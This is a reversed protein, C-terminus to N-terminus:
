LLEEAMKGFSNLDQFDKQRLAEFLIVAVSNSLNLSRINERMPIRICKDKNANLLQQPLGATEKGFVFFCGDPYEINAYSKAAKTTSFYMTSNSHEKMFETLNDYCRLDLESWYDLGARKLYRDEISFGLPKIM